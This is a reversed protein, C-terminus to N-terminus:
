NQDDLKNQYYKVLDIKVSDKTEYLSSSYNSSDGNNMMESTASQRWWDFYRFSMGSFMGFSLYSLFSVPSTSWM